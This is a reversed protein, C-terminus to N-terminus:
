GNTRSTPSPGARMLPTIPEIIVSGDALNFFVRRGRRGGVDEHYINLSRKAIERRAIEINAGGIHGDMSDHRAGGYLHLRSRVTVGGHLAFLRFLEHISPGAYMATRPDDGSLRPHVYHNIGGLGSVPDYLVLSVCSGLITKVMVPDSSVFIYGPKLFHM